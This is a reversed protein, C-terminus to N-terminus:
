KIYFKIFRDLFFDILIFSFQLHFEMRCFNGITLLHHIYTLHFCFTHCTFFFSSVKFVSGFVVFCNSAKDSSQRWRYEMAFFFSVLACFFIQQVLFFGCVQFIIWASGKNFTNSTMTCSINKKKSWDNLRCTHFNDNILKRKTRQRWLLCFFFNLM